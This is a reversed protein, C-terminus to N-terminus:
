EAAHAKLAVPLDWVKVTGLSVSALRKGGRSLAVGEVPAHPVLEMPRHPGHPLAALLRRAEAGWVCAREGDCAGALLRGDASIAVQYVNRPQDEFRPPAALAALERGQKLGWLVVRAGRCAALTDGDPAIALSGATLPANGPAEVPARATQWFRSLRKRAQVDWVEVGSTTAVALRRSDPAFCLALVDDGTAM